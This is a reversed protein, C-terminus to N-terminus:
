AGELQRTFIAAKEDLSLKSWFYDLHTETVCITAVGVPAPAPTSNSKRPPTSKSRAAKSPTTGAIMGQQHPTCVGTKNDSRLKKGCGQVSCVRPQPTTERNPQHGKAYPSRNSKAIGGCGCKCLRPPKNTGEMTINEKKRTKRKERYHKRQQLWGAIEEVDAEGAPPIEPVEDACSVEREVCVIHTPAEDRSPQETAEAAPSADIHATKEKTPRPVKITRTSYMEAVLPRTPKDLGAARLKRGPCVIGDDCFVCLNFDKQALCCTCETCYM